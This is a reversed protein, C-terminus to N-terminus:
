ICAYIGDSREKEHEAGNEILKAASPAGQWRGGNTLREAAGLAGDRSGDMLRFLSLERLRFLHVHM